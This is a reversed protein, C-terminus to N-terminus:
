VKATEEYLEHMYERVEKLTYTKATGNDLAACRRELEAVYEDFKIKLEADSVNDNTEIDTRKELM